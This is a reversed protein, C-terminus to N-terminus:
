GWSLCMRAWLADARRGGFVGDQSGHFALRAEYQVVGVGVHGRRRRCRHRGRPQVELMRRHLALLRRRGQARDARVSPVIRILIHIRRKPRRVARPREDLWLLARAARNPILRPHLRARSRHIRPQRIHLILILHSLILSQIPNKEQQFSQIHRGKM